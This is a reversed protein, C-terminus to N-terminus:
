QMQKCHRYFIIEESLMEEVSNMLSLAVHKSNFVHVNEDPSELDHSENKDSNHGFM